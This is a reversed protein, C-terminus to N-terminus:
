PMPTPTVHEHHTEKVRTLLLLSIILCAPIMLFAFKYTEQSFIRTGDVITGDWGLDLLKGTIPDSLASLLADFANMFGVATGALAISCLEQIMTFCLLFSSISFGFVFLLFAATFTSLGPYYIFASISILSVVTGWFMIIRRKDLWDSFWGFFPAGAAFGIFILSVAQAAETQNLDFAGMTFSVGWLGGFVMVPAFALGSYGSLWWSQSKGLVNKLSYRITHIHIRKNEHHPARDRVILWFLAALGLGVFGLTEMANRWGSAEIFSSLPAQGGVAGLMAMTMMLGAMIAFKKAPFWGTVLKLCNIAGFAAGTGTILRGITALLMTEAQSFILSGIACLTIAITTVRRPGFKDVLLGAPIQLLLYAYFYSAALNGMEMGTINFTKMLTSAMVSPSVELVYKYFM